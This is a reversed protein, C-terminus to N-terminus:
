KTEKKYQTEKHRQIDRMDNDLAIFKAKSFTFIEKRCYKLEEM